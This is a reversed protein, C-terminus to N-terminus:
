DFKPERKQFFASIAEATEPSSLRSIFVEAERWVAAELAEQDPGRMLAKADRMAGPPQRALHHARSLAHDWVEDAPLTANLFGGKEALDTGFRDGTLLLETAVRYGLARPLLFTSGAEPSRCTSTRM